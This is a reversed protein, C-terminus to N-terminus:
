ARARTTNSFVCGTSGPRCGPTVFSRVNSHRTVPSSQTGSSTTVTVSTASSTWPWWAFYWGDEVTASVTHGNAFTFSIATVGRGAQGVAYPGYGGGIHRALFDYIQAQTAHEPRFKPRPLDGWGVGGQSAYPASIQDAGPATLVTGHQAVSVHWPPRHSQPDGITLCSYLKGDSVDILATSTGRVEALVPQQSFARRNAAAGTGTFGHGCTHAAKAIASATAPKPVASWFAYAVPTSSSLALVLGVAVATVATSSIAVAPWLLRRRSVPRRTHASLRALAATTDYSVADEAFLDRLSQELTDSM